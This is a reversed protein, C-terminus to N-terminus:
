KDNAVENQHNAINKATVQLENMFSSNSLLLSSLINIVSEKESFISKIEKTVTMIIRRFYIELSTYINVIVVETM